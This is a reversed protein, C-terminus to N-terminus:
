TQINCHWLGINDDGAHMTLRLTYAAYLDCKLVIQKSHSTKVQEYLLASPPLSPPPSCEGPETWRGLLSQFFVPLQTHILTVHISRHFYTMTAIPCLNLPLLYFLSSFYLVSQATYIQCVCMLLVILATICIYYYIMMISHSVFLHECGM